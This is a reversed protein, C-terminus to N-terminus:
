FLEALHDRAHELSGQGALTTSSLLLAQVGENTASPAEPASVAGCATVGLVWPVLLRTWRWPIFLPPGRKSFSDSAKSCVASWDPGKWVIPWAKKLNRYFAFFPAICPVVIF